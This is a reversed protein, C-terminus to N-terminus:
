WVLVAMVHVAVAVCMRVYGTRSCPATFLSIGNRELRVSSYQFIGGLKILCVQM